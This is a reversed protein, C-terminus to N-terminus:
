AILPAVNRIVIDFDVIDVIFALAEAASVLPLKILLSYFLGLLM